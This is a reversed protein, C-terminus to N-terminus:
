LVARLEEILCNQLANPGLRNFPDKLYKKKRGHQFNADNEHWRIAYPLRPFGTGSGGGYSIVAVPNSGKWRMLVIGTRLLFGEDLPVEQKTAPLVVNAAKECAKRCAEKVVRNIQDGDWRRWGNSM